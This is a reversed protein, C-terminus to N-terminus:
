GEAARKLLNAAVLARAGWFILNIGVLLGV